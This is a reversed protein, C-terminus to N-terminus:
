IFHLNEFLHLFIDTKFLGLISQFLGLPPFFIDYISTLNLFMDFRYKIQKNMYM